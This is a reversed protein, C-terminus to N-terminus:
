SEPDTDPDPVVLSTPAYPVHHAPLRQDHDLVRAWVRTGPEPPQSTRVTKSAIVQPYLLGPDPRTITVLVRPGDESKRSGDAAITWGPNPAEMTVDIVDESTDLSMPPTDATARPSFRVQSSCGAALLALSAVLGTFLGRHVLGHPQHSHAPLRTQETISM